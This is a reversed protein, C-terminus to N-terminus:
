VCYDATEYFTRTVLDRIIDSETCGRKAALDKIKAKQADTLRVKIDSNYKGSGKPRGRDPM